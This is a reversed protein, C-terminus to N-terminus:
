LSRIRLRPRRFGATYNQPSEAAVPRRLIIAEDNREALNYYQHVWSEVDSLGILLPHPTPENETELVFMYIDDESIIWDVFVVKKDYIQSDRALERFTDIMVPAGEKVNILGELVSYERMRARHRELQLRSQFHDTPEDVPIQRLLMMEDEYFKRRTEEMIKSVLGQPILVVLGLLDSLSRAKFKQRLMTYM